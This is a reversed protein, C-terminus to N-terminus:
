STAMASSDQSHCFLTNKDGTMASHHTGRNDALKFLAAVNLHNNARTVLQVQKVAFRHLVEEGAFTDVLHIQRRRLHAANDSVVGVRRIEDVLVHHNLAVDNVRRM